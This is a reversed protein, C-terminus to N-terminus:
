YGASRSREAIERREQKLLEKLIKVIASSVTDLEGGVVSEICNYEKPERELGVSSESEGEGNCIM